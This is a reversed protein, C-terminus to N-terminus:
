FWRWFKFLEVVRSFFTTENKIDPSSESAVNSDSERRNVDDKVPICENGVESFGDNCIWVNKGDTAPYSNDPLKICKKGDLSKAYGVDCNSTTTAQTPTIVKKPIQATPTSTLVPIYVPVFSDDEEELSFSSDVKERYTISCTENHDYLVITDWTDLDFDTGLNVVIRNNLYRRFSSSLCGIGYKIYYYRLDYDSRIIAEKTDKNLEKLSFYVNNQKEVCQGDKLTYGDDCECQNSLYDYSSHLGYKAFCSKCELGSGTQTFEYGSTCECKGGYTSQANYGYQNQCAQNESICQTRGISDTGFVYRYSCECSNSLSDYRSNYGYKDYCVSNGFVCTTNGLFDKGFVYGSMCKCGGSLYDYTAFLGYESCDYYGFSNSSYFIFVTFFGLIIALLLWNKITKNM